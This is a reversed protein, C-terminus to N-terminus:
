DRGRGGGGVGCVGLFAVDSEFSLVVIYGIVRFCCLSNKKETRKQQHGNMRRDRWGVWMAASLQVDVSRHNMWHPINYDDGVEVSSQM